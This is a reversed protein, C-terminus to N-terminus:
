IRLASILESFIPLASMLVTLKGAVDIKFAIASEGADRCVGSIFECIYSIGTIKFLVEVYLIDIGFSDCIDRIYGFVGDAASAIYTFFIVGAALTIFVSFESRYNKITLSAFVATLALSALKIIDM